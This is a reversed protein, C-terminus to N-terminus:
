YPFIIIFRCQAPINVIIVFTSCARDVKAPIIKKIVNSGRSDAIGFPNHINFASSSSSDGSDFHPRCPTFSVLPSCPRSLIVGRKFRLLRNKWTEKLHSRVVEDHHKIVHAQWAVPKCYFYDTVSFFGTLFFATHWTVPSFRALDFFYM